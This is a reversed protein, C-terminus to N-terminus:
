RVSFLLDGYSPFPWLEKPVITELEDASIRLENMSEFVHERYFFATKSADGSLKKVDCVDKELQQVKKYIESTLSSVKTLMETEYTVDAADCVAKKSAITDALKGAFKSGAPLIYKKAMDLM